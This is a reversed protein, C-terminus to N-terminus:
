RNLIIRARRKASGAAARANASTAHAWLFPAAIKDCVQRTITYIQYTIGQAKPMYKVTVGRLKHMGYVLGFVIALPVLSVVLAQIILFILAVSAVTNM